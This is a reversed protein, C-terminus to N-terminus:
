SFLIDLLDHTSSAPHPLGTCPHQQQQQQKLTLPPQLLSVSVVQVCEMSGSDANGSSCSCLAYCHVHPPQALHCCHLISILHSERHGRRSSRRGRVPRRAVQVARNAPTGSCTTRTRSSRWTYRVCWTHQHQREGGPHMAPTHTCCRLACQTDLLWDM